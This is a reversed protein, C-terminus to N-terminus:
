RYMAELGKNPHYTWSVTVGNATRTQWGDLASTELMETYIYSPLGLESHLATLVNMYGANYYSDRDYPNTDLRIYSKDSALTICATYSPYKARVADYAREWKNKSLTSGGGTTSGGNGGGSTSGGGSGYDWEYPLPAYMSDNSPVGIQTSNQALIRAGYEGRGCGAFCLMCVAALLISVGTKARKM